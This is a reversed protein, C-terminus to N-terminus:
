KNVTFRHYPKLVCCAFYQKCNLAVMNHLVIQLKAFAAELFLLKAVDFYDLRWSYPISLLNM